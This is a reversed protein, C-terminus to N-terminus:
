CQIDDAWNAGNDRVLSRAAILSLQAFEECLSSGNANRMIGIEREFGPADLTIIQVMDLSTAYAAAAPVLAIGFGDAVLAILTPIDDMEVRDQTTIGSQQLYRDVQRGGFSARNYRLFPLTSLADQLDDIQWSMPVALVFPERFLIEWSMGQSIGFGPRIIVALDLERADIRDLLDLSTGPVVHVKVQPFESAFAPLVNRLVTTHVSAIAGVRLRGTQVAPDVPDALTGAMALLDAARVLVRHGAENLVASRGTRSFLTQGLQDELRKMQGSVASQTLGMRDGAAAFTGLRAIAMFTKLEALM